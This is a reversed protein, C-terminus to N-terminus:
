KLGFRGEEYLCISLAAVVATEVRLIQRGLSVAIMGKSVADHIEQKSFGGEPGIVILKDGATKLLSALSTLDREKEGEWFIISTKFEDEVHEVLEEFPILKHVKPRFPLGSQKAAEDAISQWRSLKRDTVAESFHPITRESYFPVIKSIGLEVTKQIIAEIKDHKIIAIALATNTKIRRSRLAKVQAVVSGQSIDEVEADFSNGKGDSLVLWDGRNLRLVTSIHKADNGRIEVKSGISFDKDIFFQPM